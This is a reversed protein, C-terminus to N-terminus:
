PQTPISVLTPSAASGHGGDGLQGQDGAGWCFVSGATDLACTHELGASVSSFSHGPVQTPTPNASDFTGTGLQGSSGAGWCYATGGATLGCTHALGATVSTTNIGTVLSPLYTNQQTPSGTRGQGGDGWCYTLGPTTTACTHYYGAAVATLGSVGPVPTPVSLDIANYGTGLEGSSGSGWCFAQGAQTLACTHNGGAAISAFSVGGTVQVPVASDSTGGGGLQGNAGYGWCFAAGSENLACTHSEGSTLSSFRNPSQVAVPSNSSTFSGHGLQGSGGYGWCYALGDLTLACSHSGGSALASFALGGAVLTPTPNSQASGNGLQGEQGRGWCYAEGTSALSCTHQGGASVSTSTLSPAGFAITLVSENGANDTALLTITYPRPEMPTFSFSWLNELSSTDLSAYGLRVPGDFVEVQAVGTQADTVTGALPTEVGVQIETPPASVTLYPPIVDVGIQTGYRACVEAAGIALNAGVPPSGRLDSVEANITVETCEVVLRAGLPSTSVFQASSSYDVTFDSTPVVLDANEPPHVSLNVDIVQNPAIVTPGSLTASGILSQLTMAITLDAVVDVGLEAGDAIAHGAGDRAEVHFDYSGPFLRLTVTGAQLLIQIGPGDTPNGDEDFYVPGGGRYVALELEAVGSTGTYPDTPVGQPGIGAHEWVRPSTTLTVSVLGVPVVPQQKCGVLSGVAVLCGLWSWGSWRRAPM